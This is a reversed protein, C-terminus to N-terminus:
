ALTARVVEGVEQGARAVAVGDPSFIASTGATQEYGGGTPGACSALAVWARCARAIVVARAEQEDLEELHHMVGALYGDVELAATAAVHQMSGTDKCVGLGLRWGDVTLVSPGPGPSFRGAEATGLWTKRYAMFVGSGDVRLVAIFERGDDRVPAGVLAIAGTAACAEVVPVLATNDPDVAAADLEYGTLSLEPFVVVRAQARRVAEAHHGANGTVDHATCAPQAVAVTLPARM